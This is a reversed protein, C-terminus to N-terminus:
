TKRYFRTTKKWQTIYSLLNEKAKENAINPEPNLQCQIEITEIMLNVNSRENFSIQDCVDTWELKIM